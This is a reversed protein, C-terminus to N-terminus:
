GNDAGLAHYGVYKKPQDVPQDTVVLAELAEGAETVAKILESTLLTDTIEASESMVTAWAPLKPHDKTSTLSLDYREDRLRKMADKHVVAWVFGDYTSNSPLKREEIVERGLKGGSVPVLEKEKGDFAYSTAEMKEQPAPMSDFFLSLALEGSWLLPNYRKVLELRVDLFAVNLRGTAYTEYVNPSKERLLDEPIVLEGSQSLGESQGDQM